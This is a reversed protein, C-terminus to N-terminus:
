REFILDGLGSALDDRLEEDVRLFILEGAWSSEFGDLIARVAADGADDGVGEAVAVGIALAPADEGKKMLFLWAAVAREEAAVARRVAEVVEDPPPEAPLGIRLLTGAPVAETERGGLPSRGRALAELEARYIVGGTASAPNVVLIAAGATVAMEFLARSPLAVYGGGESHYERLREVSTFVPLAPGDDSELMTLVLEDGEETTRWGEEAPPTPTAIVLTTRLLANYLAARTDADDEIAVREMARELDSLGADGRSKRRFRM